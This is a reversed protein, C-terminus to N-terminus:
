LENTTSVNIMPSGKAKLAEKKVEDQHKVALHAYDMFIFLISNISLEIYLNNSIVGTAVIRDNGSPCRSYTLGASL